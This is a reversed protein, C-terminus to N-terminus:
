VSIELFDAATSRLRSTADEEDVYEIASSERDLRAHDRIQGLSAGSKSALRLASRRLMQINVSELGAERGLNRVRKYIADASMRKGWNRNSFSRWLPGSGEGYIDVLQQVADAAQDPIKVYGGTTQAHRPLDIVWHRGLPRIDDVDLPAVESRRLAGYLILLILARDRVGPPSDDDTASLISQLEEKSLVTADTRDPTEVSLSASRCPNSSVHGEEVLWDFFRRTAAMRRRVTATSLDSDQLSELYSEIHRTEIHTFKPSSENM